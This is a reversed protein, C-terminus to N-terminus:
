PEFDSAEVTYNGGNGVVKVVTGAQPSAWRHVFRSTGKPVLIAGDVGSGPDAPTVGPGAVNVYVDNTADANRVWVALVPGTLTVIDVTTTSLLATKSRAVSYSAM